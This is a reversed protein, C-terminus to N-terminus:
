QHLAGERRSGDEGVAGDIRPYRGSDASEASEFVFWNRSFVQKFHEIQFM